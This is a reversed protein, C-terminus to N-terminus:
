SLRQHGQGPAAGTVEIVLQGVYHLHEMVTLRRHPPQGTYLRYQVEGTVRTMVGPHIPGTKVLELHVGGRTLNHRPARPNWGWTPVMEEDGASDAKESMVRVGVGTVNTQAMLYGRPQGPVFWVGESVEGECRAIVSGEPILVSAIVTGPPLGADVRLPGPGFHYPTTISVTQGGGLCLAHGQASLLATCLVLLGTLM